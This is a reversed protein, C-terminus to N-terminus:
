IVSFIHSFVEAPIILISFRRCENEDKNNLKLDSSIRSVDSLADLTWGLVPLTELAV